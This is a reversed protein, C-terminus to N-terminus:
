KINQQNNFLFESIQDEEEDSAGDGDGDGIEEYNQNLYSIILADGIDTVLVYPYQKTILMYIQDKCIDTQLDDISYPINKILSPLQQELEAIKNLGLQKSLLEGNFYRRQKHDMNSIAKKIQMIKQSINYYEESEEKRYGQRYDYLAESLCSDENGSKFQIKVAEDITLIHCSIIDLM